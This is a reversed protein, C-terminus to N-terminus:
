LSKILQNLGKGLRGQALKGVRQVEEDTAPHAILFEWPYHHRLEQVSIARSVNTESPVTDIYKLEVSNTVVAIGMFRAINNLGSLFEKEYSYSMGVVQGGNIAVNHIVGVDEFSPTSPSTVYYVVPSEAVEGTKKMNEKFLAMLQQDADKLGFFDGKAAKYHGMHPSSYAQNLDAGILSMVPLMDVGFSKEQNDEMPHNIGGAACTLIVNHVGVENLMALYGTALEMRELYGWDETELGSESIEYAHTRGNFILVKKGQATIGAILEKKHAKNQGIPLGITEYPIHTVERLELQDIIPSLGSGITISVDANGKWPVLKRIVNSGYEIWKKYGLSRTEQIVIKAAAGINKDTM